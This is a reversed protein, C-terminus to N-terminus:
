RTNCSTVPAVVVIAVVLLVKKVVAVITLVTPMLHDAAATGTDKWTLLSPMTQVVTPVEDAVAADPSIVHVSM